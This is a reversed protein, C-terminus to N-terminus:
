YIQQKIICFSEKADIMIQQRLSDIDKFKREERLYKVLSVNVEHYYLDTGHYDPFWTEFILQKEGFTPRIGLNTVGYYKEGNLESFSSYVGIAPIMLDSEPVQNITPIGIKRGRGKGEVVCSNISFNRGLMERADEMRGQSVSERIRTSSVPLDKYIVPLIIDVFIGYKSCIDRLKNADSRGGCGFHYNFGCSVRKANFIGKLIEKVFEEASLDYIDNFDIVYLNELGLTRLIKDRHKENLLKREKYGGLISHPNRSFTFLVTELGEKKYKIANNIVEQHGIHIGDFYGLAVSTQKSFRELKNYINM